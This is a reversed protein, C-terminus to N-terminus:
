SISNNSNYRKNGFYKDAIKITNSAIDDKKLYSGLKTYYGYLKEAKKADGQDFYNDAEEKIDMAVDNAADQGAKKAYAIKLRLSHDELGSKNFEDSIRNLQVKNVAHNKDYAAIKNAIENFIAEARNKQFKNKAILFKLFYIDLLLEKSKTAREAEDLYMIAENFYEGNVRMYLRTSRIDNKSALLELQDLRARAVEYYLQAINKPRKKITRKITSIEDNYGDFSKCYSYPSVVMSLFLVILVLSLIKKMM